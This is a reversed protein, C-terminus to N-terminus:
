PRLPSFAEPRATVDGFEVALEGDGCVLVPRRESTTAPLIQVPHKANLGLADDAFVVGDGDGVTAPLDALHAKTVRTGPIRHGYVIM